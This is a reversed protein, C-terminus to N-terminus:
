KKRCRKRQEFKLRKQLAELTENDSDSEDSQIPNNRVDSQLITREGDKSITLVEMSQKLIGQGIECIRPLGGEDSPAEDQYSDQQVEAPFLVIDLYESDQVTQYEDDDSDLEKLYNLLQEADLPDSSDFFQKSRRSM